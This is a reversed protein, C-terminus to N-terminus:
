NQLNFRSFGNKILQFLLLLGGNKKSHHDKIFLFMTTHLMAPDFRQGKPQWGFARGASSIGRSDTM